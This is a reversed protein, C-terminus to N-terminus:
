EPAGADWALPPPPPLEDARPVLWVAIVGGPHFLEVNVLGASLEGVDVAWSTGVHRKDRGAIEVAGVKGELGDADSGVLAFLRHPSASKVVVSAFGRERKKPWVFGGEKPELLDAAKAVGIAEVLPEPVGAFRTLPARLEKKAGLKLLTM